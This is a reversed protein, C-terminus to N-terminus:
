KGANKKAKLAGFGITNAFQDKAMASAEEGNVIVRDFIVRDPGTKQVLVFIVETSTGTVNDKQSATLSWIGDEVHKWTKQAQQNIGYTALEEVTIGDFRGEAGNMYVVALPSKLFEETPSGSSCGSTLSFLGVLIAGLLSKGKSGQVKKM